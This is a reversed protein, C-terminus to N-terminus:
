DQALDADVGALVQDIEDLEKELDAVDAETIGTGTATSTPVEAATVDPAATTPPSTTVATVTEDSTVATVTADTVATVAPTPPTSDGIADSSDCAALGVVVALTVLLTAALRRHDRSTM